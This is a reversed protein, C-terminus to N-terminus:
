NVPPQIITSRTSSFPNRKKQYNSRGYIKTIRTEYEFNLESLRKFHLYAFAVSLFTLLFPILRIARGQGMKAM